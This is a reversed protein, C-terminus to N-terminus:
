LAAELTSIEGAKLAAAIRARERKRREVQYLWEEVSLIEGAKVRRVFSEKSTVVGSPPPPPPVQPGEHADFAARAVAELDDAEDVPFPGKM